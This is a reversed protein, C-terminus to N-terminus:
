PCTVGFNALLLALDTLDTDHDGDVDGVCGSTCAFDSLLIALDTLDVDLDGDVDGVCLPPAATAGPWFGGVLTFGGGTATGPDPQGVTGSLTFGGGSSTGGGGDITFWSIDMQAQAVGSTLVCCILSMLTTSTVNKM